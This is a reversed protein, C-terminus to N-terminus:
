ACCGAGYEDDGNREPFRRIAICLQGRGDYFPTAGHAPGIAPVDAQHKSHIGRSRRASGWSTAAPIQYRGPAAGAVLRERM